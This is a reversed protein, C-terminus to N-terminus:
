NNPNNRDDTNKYTKGKKPKTLQKKYQRSKASLEQFVEDAVDSLIEAAEDNEKLTRSMGASIKLNEYNGLNITRDITVWVKDEKNQIEM